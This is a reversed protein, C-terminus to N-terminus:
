KMRRQSTIRPDLLPYLLDVALTATAVGLIGLLAVGNIVTYDFSKIATHLLTGLGPYNFVVEVLVSGSLVLGLSLALSTVQPLLVNRLAYRFFIRKGRLGKAEGFTIYDEKLGIVMMGRMSIAWWGVGSLVLALAPLTAHRLVDLIFPLSLGSVVGAGYGGGLPFIGLTFAFLALLAIAMLYFPVASLCLLLPMFYRVFRPAKPWALLAGGLSGLTFAMLTSMVLLGISWPMARLLMASVRTPFVALSYGLDLRFLDKYFYLYQRWMPQDLGFKENWASMMEDLGEIVGGGRAATELMREAVPNREPLRPFLFIITSAIWIVLVFFGLRKLLYSITM